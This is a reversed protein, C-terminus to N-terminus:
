AMCSIFLFAMLKKLYCYLSYVLTRYSVVVSQDLFFIRGRNAADKLNGIIDGHVKDDIFRHGLGPFLERPHDPSCIYIQEGRYSFTTFAGNSLPLLKLGCLEDFKRDKLCFQLLLLKDRRDLKQYCSPVQKLAARTGTPTISKVYAGAFCLIANTVHSPVSVVPVDAALLVRQLLEKPEDSSLLDFVVNPVTRWQGLHASTYIVDKQLLLYFLPRKIKEWKPDISSIDPWARCCVFLRLM